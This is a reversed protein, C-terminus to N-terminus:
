GNAIAIMRLARQKHSPDDVVKFTNKKSTIDGLIQDLGQKMIASSKACEALYDAVEDVADPLCEELISSITIKAALNQADVVSGRLSPPTDQIVQFARIAIMGEIYLFMEDPEYRDFYEFFSGTLDGLRDHCVDSLAM